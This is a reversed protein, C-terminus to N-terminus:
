RNGSRRRGGVDDEVSLIVDLERLTGDVEGVGITCTITQCGPKARGIEARKGM